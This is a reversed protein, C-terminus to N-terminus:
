KIEHDVPGSVSNNMRQSGATARAPQELGAYYSLGVTAAITPRSPQSRRRRRRRALLEKKKEEIRKKESNPEKKKNSRRPVATRQRAIM